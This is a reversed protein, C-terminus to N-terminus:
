LGSKYAIGISPLWLDGQILQRVTFMEAEASGILHYGTWNVRGTTMAGPGYNGYEAYYLTDLFINSSNWPIWGRPHIIESIYSQMFVTTSLNRWPRGLYTSTTNMYPVLSSDASINCSQFSFGSSSSANDRSNATITNTRQDPLGKRALIECDQFVASARGFIFDITGSIWCERYFQRFSHPYLTDQYGRFGCRFFASLDSVSLLAVAQNRAPGATNEFTM